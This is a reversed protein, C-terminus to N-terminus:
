RADPVRGGKQREAKGGQRKEDKRREADTTRM